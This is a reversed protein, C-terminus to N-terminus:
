KGCCTVRRFQDPKLNVLLTGGHRRGVCQLAISYSNMLANVSITEPMQLVTVTVGSVACEFTRCRRDIDLDDVITESRGCHFRAAAVDGPIAAGKGHVLATLAHVRQAVPKGIRDLQFRVVNVNNRRINAACEAELKEQLTFSDHGRVRGHGEAPGDFPDAVSVLTKKRVQM